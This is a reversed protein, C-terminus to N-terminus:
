AAIGSAAHMRDMLLAADAGSVARLKGQIALKWHESVSLAHSATAAHNDPSSTLVWTRPADGM